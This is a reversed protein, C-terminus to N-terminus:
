YFQPTVDINTVFEGNKDYYNYSMTIEHNRFIKLEPSNRVNEIIEPRLFKKLVDVNVEEKTMMLTYHYKFTKDATSASDLRSYEDVMKPSINNIEVAADKMQEEISGENFFFYQVAFYSVAFTIIFAVTRLIKQTKRKEITEEM